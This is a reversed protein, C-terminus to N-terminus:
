ESAAAAEEPEPEKEGTKIIEDCLSIGEELCSILDQVGEPHDEHNQLANLCAELQPKTGSAVTIYERYAM